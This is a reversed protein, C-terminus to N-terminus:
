PGLWVIVSYAGQNDMRLNDNPSFWLTGSQEATFTGGEGVYFPEGDGIRGLLAMFQLGPGPFIGFENADPVVGDAGVPTYFICYEAGNPYTGSCPNMLGDAEVTFSQGASLIIGSEVWDGQNTILLHTDPVQYDWVTGDHDDDDQAVYGWTGPVMDAFTAVWTDGDYSIETPDQGDLQTWFSRDPDYIGSVTQDSLNFATVKLDAVWLEKYFGNELDTMVIHDNVELSADHQWIEFLVRTEGEPFDPRQESFATDPYEDGNITLSIEDGMPWDYGEIASPMYAAFSPLPIHWDVATANSAQDVLEVRGGMGPLLGFGQSGFDALWTGGEASLQMYSGDVDHIWTHLIYQEPDFVATGEVTDYELDVNTITLEQIQHTFSFMESSLTVFDGAGLTCGEPFNVSFFSNSPDWEPFTPTAETSCAQEKGAVSISVEDRVPWEYGELYNWKPWVTFRTSPVCWDVATSNAFDDRIESRGCEGPVLDFLGSFDANWKGMPQGMTKANALLEQGTAHPWVYVEAGPDAIGKITDDEHIVNTVALNQVTHERTTTGDTFTVMDGVEVDCGEGFNGNFFYDWSEKVTECEPKNNGDKDAVTISVLAEDPWDLGDFWEWEPFVTFRPNTVDRDVATDNGDADWVEARVHYGPEIDFGIDDFDVRWDESGDTEIRRGEPDEWSWLTVVKGDNATGFVTNENPDIYSISLKQVEHTREMDGDLLSLTVVDGPKTTFADAFDIWLWTAGSEPDWPTLVMTGDREFDPSVETSPDEITMHIVTDLPWDWGEVVGQEPFVTFWPNHEQAQVKLTVSFVIILVGLFSLIAAVIWRRKRIASIFTNM